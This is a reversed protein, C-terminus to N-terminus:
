GEQAGMLEAAFLVEEPAGDREIKGDRILILRQACKAVGADHTVMVITQDQNESLQELLRTVRASQRSDLNGTPEDALLLAPRIALARAIAVRQQEGGSLTAPLHTRRHSMEVLELVEATRQQVEQKPLNDLQMPLAVNEEASLNPLLNFSQFIFGLRRRRLITREDESLDAFNVGELLVRGQTPDEIGGLITLLTSKGSGSPGMIAVFEGKGVEVSVGRLAAVRAEETGYSKFVDQAALVSM